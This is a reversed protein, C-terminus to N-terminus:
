DNKIHFLAYGSTQFCCCGSSSFNSNSKFFIEMIAEMVFCSECLCYLEGKVGGGIFYVYVMVLVLTSVYAVSGVGLIIVM